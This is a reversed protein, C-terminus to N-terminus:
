ETERRPPIADSEGSGILLDYVVIRETELADSRLGIIQDQGFELVRLNRPARFRAVPRGSDFVTWARSAGVRDVVDEVWIRGSADIAIDRFAPYTEHRPMREFLGNWFSRFRDNSSTALISDRTEEFRGPPIPAPDSRVRVIRAPGHDDHVTYAYEDSTALVVGTPAGANGAVAFARRGFLTPRGGSMGSDGHFVAEDGPLVDLTDLSGDPHLRYFGARPRFPGPERDDETRDQRILLSGDSFADLATFFGFSPDVTWSRALTGDPAYITARRHRRDFALVSDGAMRAVFSLSAFEGPGDGEGGASAVFSGDGALFRVESTGSNAVVIRGDSLSAASTVRYLRTGPPGDVTGATVSPVESLSWIPLEDKRLRELTVIEIGGSDRRVLDFARTEDAPRAEGSCAPLAGTLVAVLALDLAIAVPGSRNMTGRDDSM